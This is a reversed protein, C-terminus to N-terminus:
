NVLVEDHYVIEEKMVIYLDKIKIGEIKLQTNLTKVGCNVAFDGWNIKNNAEQMADEGSVFNYAWYNVARKIGALIEEITMGAIVKVKFMLIQDDQGDASKVAFLRTEKQM